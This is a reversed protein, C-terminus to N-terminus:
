RGTQSCHLVTKVQQLQEFHLTHTHMFRTIYERRREFFLQNVPFSASFNSSVEFNHNQQINPIGAEESPGDGNGSLGHYSQQPHQQQQQQHQHQGHDDLIDREHTATSTKRPFINQM